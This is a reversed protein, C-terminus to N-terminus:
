HSSTNVSLVGYNEINCPDATGKVIDYKKLLEGIQEVEKQIAENILINPQSLAWQYVICTYMEPKVLGSARVFENWFLTVCHFKENPAYLNSGIHYQSVHLKHIKLLCLVSVIPYDNIQFLSNQFISFSFNHDIARLNESTMESNAIFNYLRTLDAQAEIRENEYFSDIQSNNIAKDRVTDKENDNNREVHNCSSHATFISVLVLQILFKYNIKSYFRRGFSKPVLHNKEKEIQEYMVEFM